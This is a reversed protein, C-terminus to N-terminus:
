AVNRDELPIRKQNMPRGEVVAEYVETILPAYEDLGCVRHVDTERTVAGCRIAEAAQTLADTMCEASQPNADGRAWRNDDPGIVYVGCAMSELLTRTAIVHPTVLIDMARYHHQMNGVRTFVEGLIGADRYADLLYSWVKTPIGRQSEDLPFEMGYFHVKVGRVAQAAHYMSNAIEFTDVDDRWSDAIMVNIDGRLGPAIEYTSGEPSFRRKDIPPRGILKLKEPPVIVQWYEVHERWLTLMARVRPWQALEAILSYSRRNRNQEPRFSDLPRGHLLWVMPAQSQAVWLDEIGTHAVIVDADRASEPSVTKICFGARDDISGVTGPERDIGDATVGCDVIVADHGYEADARLMDRAAEYLGSRNPGFGAYHAIKM